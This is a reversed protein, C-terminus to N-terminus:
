TPSTNANQEGTTKSLEAIIKTQIDLAQSLLQQTYSNEGAISMIDMHVKAEKILDSIEILQSLM